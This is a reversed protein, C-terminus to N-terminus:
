KKPNRLPKKLGSIYEEYVPFSSGPIERSGSPLTPKESEDKKAANESALKAANERKTLIMRYNEEVEKKTPPDQRRYRLWSEWEATIEQEFNEKDLPEFFRGRTKRGADRPEEYFKTGYFDEGM